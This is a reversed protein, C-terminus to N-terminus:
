PVFPNEKAEDGVTSLKRFVSEGLRTKYYRVSQRVVAAPTTAQTAINIINPPLLPNHTNRRIFLRNHETGGAPFLESRILVSSM